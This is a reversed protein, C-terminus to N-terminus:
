ASPTTRIRLDAATALIEEYVRLRLAPDGQDRQIYEEVLARARSLWKPVVEDQRQFEGLSVDRAVALHADILIHKAMRRTQFRQDNAIPAAIEIAKLHHQMAKKIQNVSGEALLDGLMLETAAM